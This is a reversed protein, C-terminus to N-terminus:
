NRCRVVVLFTLAMELVTTLTLVTILSDQKHNRRTDFKKMIIFLYFNNDDLNVFTYTTNEECM